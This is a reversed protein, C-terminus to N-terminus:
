RLKSCTKVILLDQFRLRKKDQKNFFNPLKKERFCLSDSFITSSSLLIFLVPHSQLVPVYTQLLSNSNNLVVNHLDLIHFARTANVVDGNAAKSLSLSSRGVTFSSFQASQNKKNKQKFFLSVLSFFFLLYSFRLQNIM